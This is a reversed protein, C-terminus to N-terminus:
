WSRPRQYPDCSGWLSPSSEGDETNRRSVSVNADPDTQQAERVPDQVLPCHSTKRRPLGDTSDRSDDSTSPLDHATFETACPTFERSMSHSLNVSLNPRLSESEVAFISGQQPWSACLYTPTNSSSWTDLKPTNGISSGLDRAPTAASTSFPTRSPTCELDMLPTVATSDLWDSPTRSRTHPKTYVQIPRQFGLSFDNTDMNSYTCVAEVYTRHDTNSVLLDKKTFLTVSYWTCIYM